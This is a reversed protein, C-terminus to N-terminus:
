DNILRDREEEPLEYWLNMLSSDINRVMEKDFRIADIDKLSWLDQIVKKLLDNKDVSLLEEKRKRAESNQM